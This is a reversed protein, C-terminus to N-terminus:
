RKRFWFRMLANHVPLLLRMGRDMSESNAELAVEVADLHLGALRGLSRDEAPEPDDYPVAGVADSVGTIVDGLTKAEVSKRLRTAKPLARFRLNGTLDTETELFGAAVLRPLGFSLEDFTPILRNLWDAADLLDRLSVAHGDHSVETLAALLWGDSRTLAPHSSTDVQDTGVTPRGLTGSPAVALLASLGM